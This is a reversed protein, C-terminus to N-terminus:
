EGWKESMSTLMYMDSIDQRHKKFFMKRKRFAGSSSLVATYSYSFPTKKVKVRCKYLTLRYASHDSM